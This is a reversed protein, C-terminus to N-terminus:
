IGMNKLIKKGNKMIKKRTKNTSENYMLIMGASIMTGIMMGKVFKM